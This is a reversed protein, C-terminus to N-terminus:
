HHHRGASHGGSAVYVAEGATGNKLYCKADGALHFAEGEKLTGRQHGSVEIDGKLSLIIEEHGAGPSVLRGEEGPRLTGYILYCARTGTEKFGLVHEGGASLAKGAVEFTKM